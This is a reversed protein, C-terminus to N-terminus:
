LLCGGGLFFLRDLSDVIKSRACVEYNKKFFDFQFDLIIFHKGVPSLVVIRRGRNHQGLFSVTLFFFVDHTELLSPSPPPHSCYPPPSPLPLRGFCQHPHDLCRQQYGQSVPLANLHFNPLLSCPYPFILLSTSSAFNSFPFSLTWM